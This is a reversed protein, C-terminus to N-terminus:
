RPTSARFEAALDAAARARETIAEWRGEQILNKEALWSGGIAGVFSHELYTAMNALNMGGLPLYRLGLHAYPAAIAKLYDIGGLPEAPFFKLV